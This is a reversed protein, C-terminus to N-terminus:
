RENIEGSPSRLNEDGGSRPWDRDGAWTELSWSGLTGLGARDRAELSVLRWAWLPWLGYPEFDSLDITALTGLPYLGFHYRSWTALAGIRWFNWASKSGSWDPSLRGLAPRKDDRFFGDFFGTLLIVFFRRSNKHTL